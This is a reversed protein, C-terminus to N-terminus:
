FRGPPSRFGCFPQDQTEWRQVRLIGTVREAMIAKRAERGRPLEAPKGQRKRYILMRM